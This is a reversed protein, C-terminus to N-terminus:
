LHRRRWPAYERRQCKFPKLFLQATDILVTSCRHLLAFIAKLKTKRL